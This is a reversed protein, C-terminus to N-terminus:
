RWFRNDESEVKSLWDNNGRLKENWPIMQETIWEQVTFSQFTNLLFYFRHNWHIMHLSKCACLYKCKKDYM